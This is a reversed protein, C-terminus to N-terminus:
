KCEEWPKSDASLITESATEDYFNRYETVCENQHHLILLAHRYIHYSISKTRPKLAPSVEGRRSM